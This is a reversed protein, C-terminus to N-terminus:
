VADNAEFITSLLKSAKNAEIGFSITGGLYFILLMAWGIAGGQFSGSTPMQPLSLIVLGGVFSLWVLSFLLVGLPLKMTVEIRVGPVSPSFRGYIVPRFAHRHRIFRRIQFGMESVTGEFNKPKLNFGPWGSRPPAVELTLRQIVEEQSLPSEFVLQQYPLLPIM